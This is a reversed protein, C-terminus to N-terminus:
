ALEVSLTSDSAGVALPVRPALADIGIAGDLAVLSTTTNQGGASDAVRVGFSDIAIERVTFTSGASGPPLVYTGTIAGSIAAGNKLWQYTMAPAGADSAYLWLGPRTTLTAGDAITGEVVPTVLNLPGGSLDSPSVTWQGTYNAPASVTVALTSADTDIELTQDALELLTLSVPAALSAWLSPPVLLNAEAVRWGGLM